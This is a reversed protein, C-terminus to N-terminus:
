TNVILLWAGSLLNKPIVVNDDANSKTADIFVSGEFMDECGGHVGGSALRGLKPLAQVLQLQCLWQRHPSHWEFRELSRSYRSWWEKVAVM